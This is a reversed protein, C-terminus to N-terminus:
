PLDGSESKIRDLVISSSADKVGPLRLIKEETFRGYSKPDKALSTAKEWLCQESAYLLSPPSV